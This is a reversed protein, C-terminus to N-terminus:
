SSKFRTSTSNESLPWIKRKKESQNDRFNGQVILQLFILTM